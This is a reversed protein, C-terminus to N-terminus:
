EEKSIKEGVISFTFAPTQEGTNYVRSDHVDQPVLDPFKVRCLASKVEEGKTELTGVLLLDKRRKHKRM